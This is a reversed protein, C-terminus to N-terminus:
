KLDYGFHASVPGMVNNIYDITELSLKERHDGPTGKRIHKAPDEKVPRIDRRKAARDISDQSAPIELFEFIERLYRGKEFYVDEYKLIKTTSDPLVRRYLELKRCHHHIFKRAYEDITLGASKDRVAAFIETNKKPLVHSGGPMFSFYASVMVDRPDRVLIVSRAASFDINGQFVPPLGRFSHHLYGPRICHLLETSFQWERETIGNQFMTGPINVHAIKEVECVDKLMENLMSSGCKHLSFAFRPIEDTPEFRYDILEFM